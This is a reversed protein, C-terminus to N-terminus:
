RSFPVGPDHALREVDVAERPDRSVHEQTGAEVESEYQDFLHGNGAIWADARHVIATLEAVAGRIEAALRDPLLGDALLLTEPNM